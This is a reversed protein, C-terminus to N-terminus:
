SPNEGTQVARRVRWYLTGPQGDDEVRAMTLAANVLAIINKEVRGRSRM